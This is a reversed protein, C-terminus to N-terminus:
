AAAVYERPMSQVTATAQRLYSVGVAWVSIVGLLAVCLDRLIPTGPISPSVIALSFVVAGIVLKRQAEMRSAFQLDYGLCAMFLPVCFVLYNLHNVPALAIMLVFLLSWQVTQAGPTAARRWVTVLTALIGLVVYIADNIPQFDNPRHMPDRFMWNHLAARVSWSDTGNPALLEADRAGFENIGLFPGFFDHAYTRYHTLTQTPGCAAVPIAVLAVVLGAACGLLMRGERRWMPLALLYLPILKIAIAGALLSGAAFKRGRLFAALMACVLLLVLHNAQGRMLTTGIPVICILVPIARIAWWRRHRPTQSRFTPDASTAEIASALLHVALLLCLLNLKYCIAVSLAYPLYGARDEGAPPDAFPSMLIAFLPPYSYHWHNDCTVAYPDNGSRVAWGARLFVGLDGMRRSLFASKLQVVDGFLLLVVALVGLAAWDRRTMPALPRPTM